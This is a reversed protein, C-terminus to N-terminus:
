KLELLQKAAEEKSIKGAKMNNRIEIAKPNTRFFELRGAEPDKQPQSTAPQPGPIPTPTLSPTPNTAIGMEGLNPKGAQGAEAKAQIARLKATEFYKIEDMLQQQKAEDKEVALMRMRQVIAADFTKPDTAPKNGGSVAAAERSQAMIRALEIARKSDREDNAVKGIEEPTNMWYAKAIQAALATGKPSGFYKAHEPNTVNVGLPLTGGNQVAAAALKSLETMDADARQRDIDSLKKKNEAVGVAIRQELPVGQLVKLHDQMTDAQANAQNAYAQKSTMEIPHMQQARQEQGMLQQLTAQQKQQDLNFADMGKQALFPSPGNWLSQLDNPM